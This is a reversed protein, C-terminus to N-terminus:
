GIPAIPLLLSRPILLVPIFIKRPRKCLRRSKAYPITWLGLGEILSFAGLRILRQGVTRQRILKRLGTIKDHLLFPSEISFSKEMSLKTSAASGTIPNTLFWLAQNPTAEVEFISSPTKKIQGHWSGFSARGRRPTRGGALPAVGALTQGTRAKNSRPRLIVQTSMPMTGFSKQSLSPQVPWLSIDM